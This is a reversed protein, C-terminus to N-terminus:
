LTIDLLSEAFERLRAVPLESLHMALRVYPENQPQAAFRRIDAPLKQFKDESERDQAWQGVPGFYELFYDVEVEMGIALVELDLIPIPRIGNEYSKIRAISLGTKKSLEGLRLNKEARLQRLKNSIMKQRINVMRGLDVKEKREESLFQAAHLFRRIPINYAYALAELEPLTIQRRGSEFATLAASLIGIEEATERTTKRTAKRADKLQIGLMKKRLLLQANPSTM